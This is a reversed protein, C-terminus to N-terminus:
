PAKEFCPQQFLLESSCTETWHSITTELLCGFLHISVIM